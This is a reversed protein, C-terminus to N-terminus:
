LDDPSLLGYLVWLRCRTYLIPFFSSYSLYESAQPTEGEGLLRRKREAVFKEIEELEATSLIRSDALMRLLASMRKSPALFNPDDPLPIEPSAERKRDGGGGSELHKQNTSPTHHRYRRHSSSSVDGHRRSHGRGRSRSSSRSSSRSGHPRKRSRSDVSNRGGEDRHRTTSSSTSPPRHHASDRSSRSLSGPDFNQQASPMPAVPPGPKTDMLSDNRSSSPPLSALYEGEAKIYANFDKYLLDM